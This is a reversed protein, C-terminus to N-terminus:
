TSSKEFMIPILEEASCNKVIQTWVKSDRKLMGFVATKGSACRGNKGQVRIAVVYSEDIDFEGECLLNENLCYFAM